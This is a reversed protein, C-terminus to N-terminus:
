NTTPELSIALCFPAAKKNASVFDLTAIPKEPHPNEWVAWYFRLKRGYQEARPNGGGTWVLDSRSTPKNGDWDWAGRLDQGFVIPKIERSGDAYHFVYQGIEVGDEEHKPHGKQTYSGGQSTHLFHIAQCTQNVPIGEFQSPFQPYVTSGLQLVQSGIHYNVGEFSQSGSPLGELLPQNAQSQFDIPIFSGNASSNTDENSPTKSSSCGLSVLVLLLALPITLRKRM